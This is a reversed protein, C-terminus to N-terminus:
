PAYIQIRCPNAYSGILKYLSKELYMSQNAPIQTEQDTKYTSWVSMSYMVLECYVSFISLSLRAAIMQDLAPGSLLIEIILSYQGHFLHFVQAHLELYKVCLFQSHIFFSAMVVFM